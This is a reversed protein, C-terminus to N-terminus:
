EDLLAISTDIYESIKKSSRRIIEETSDIIKEINKGRYGYTKEISFLHVKLMNYIVDKYFSNNSMKLRLKEVYILDNEIKTLNRYKNKTKMKKIKLLFLDIELQMNKLETLESKVINLGTKIKSFYEDKKEIDNLVDEFKKFDLNDEYIKKQEIIDKASINDTGDIFLGGETANLFEIEPYRAIVKEMVYKIQLFSHIAYVKEGYINEFITFKQNDIVEQDAMQSEETIGKAHLGENTYSLDQGMFIVRKCGLKCVLDLAGNAVSPGSNFEICDINGKRYVYKGLMDSDLIYRIKNGKYEKPVEFYLQNAFLLNTANTDKVEVVRKQGPSGDLAVRFHPIIGHSDLVKVATGVALVIAKEKLIKILDINKNLSPGASVIVATKDKFLNGLAEIPIINKEKLNRITNLNWLNWNSSITAFGGQTIKLEKSVGAKIDKHYDSFLNCYYVHEVLALNRSVLIDVMLSNISNECNENIIFNINIDETIKKRNFLEAFEYTEVCKKFIQLSPEVIIISKIYKYNDIIYKIAMGNGIGFLVISEVDSSVNKFMMQMENEIDYVSHMFCRIDDKTVICNNEDECSEINLKQLPNNKKLLEYLEPVSEKFFKINRNYKEM